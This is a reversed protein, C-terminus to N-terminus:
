EVYDMTSLGDYLSILVCSLDNYYNKSMKFKEIDFDKFRDPLSRLTFLSLVAINKEIISTIDERGALFKIAADKRTFKKETSAIENLDSLTLTSLLEELSMDRGTYALGINVLEELPKRHVVDPIKIIPNKRGFYECYTSINYMGYEKVMDNLSPVQIPEHFTLYSLSSSMAPSVEEDFEVMSENQYEEILYEKDKEGISDWKKYKAILKNVRNEVIPRVKSRFENVEKIQISNEMLISSVKMESEYVSSSECINIIKNAVQQSAGILTVRFKGENCLTISGDTNLISTGKENRNESLDVKVDIPLNIPKHVEKPEKSQKSSLRIIIIFVIVILLIILLTM